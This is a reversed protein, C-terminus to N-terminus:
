KAAPDVGELAKLRHQQQQDYTLPKGTAPDTASRGSQAPKQSADIQKDKEITKIDDGTSKMGQEAMASGSLLLLAAASVALTSIRMPSEEFPHHVLL